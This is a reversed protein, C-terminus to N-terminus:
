SAESNLSSAGQEISHLNQLVNRGSPTPAAANSRSFHHNQYLSFPWYHPVTFGSRRISQRRRRRLEAASRSVEAFHGTIHYLSGLRLHCDVWAPKVKVANTYSHIAHPYQQLQMYASALNHHAEAFNPRKAIAAHYCSVAQQLQGLEKLSNALNSYGEAM